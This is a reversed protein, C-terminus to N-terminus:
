LGEREREREREKEKEREKQIKIYTGYVYSSFGWICILSSVIKVGDFKEGYVLVGALVNVSLLATMCIGGTLSTTLFVMAATGLFCLQWTFINFSLTLWYARPGLDFIKLSENKMQSFGGDALMGVSALTTAAIEMILQMEMVMAYCYVERYIKEMVPLYLAFLLGAGLTSFFGM